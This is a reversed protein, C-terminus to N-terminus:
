PSDRPPPPPVPHPLPPLPPGCALAYQPLGVGRGGRRQGDADSGRRPGGGAGGIVGVVGIFEAQLDDEAPEGCEDPARVSRQRLLPELGSASGGQITAPLRPDTDEPASRLAGSDPPTPPRARCADRGAGFTAAPRGPPMLGSPLGPRRQHRTPRGRASM